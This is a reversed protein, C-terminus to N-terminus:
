EFVLRFTVTGKERDQVLLLMGGGMRMIQRSLPLGIGNGGKKTTFFPVFVHQAVDDPICGANDSIDITVKDDTGTYAEIWIKGGGPISGEKEQVAEAANKLVNVLVRGLLPEDAHVLLDAPSVHVKVPREAMRAMRELFPKVYFLRPRPQPVHTFRRYNEVFALLDRGTRSIAELGERQKGTAQGLLTQSISTIPTVTNMIEHTLVRILKVWSDVERDSLEGGIDSVAIIRVREGGLTTYTNRVSLQGGALRDQVQSLHTLVPRELLRCAAENHQLICGRANVVLLGTGAADMIHKYYKERDIAEDRAHVLVQKIRNLSRNFRADTRSVGETAFSFSYDANDIADFMFAVKRMNHRYRRYLMWCFAAVAVALVAPLWVPLTIM